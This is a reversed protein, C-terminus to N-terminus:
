TRALLEKAKKEAPDVVHKALSELLHELSSYKFTALVWPYVKFGEWMAYETQTELLIPQVPVSWLHPIISAVEHPLNRPETFDAIIFRSMCALITMTEMLHRSASKDFDFWVPIYDRRRLEERIADLVTKREPTFRGLILVVKTTITDIVDRIKENNLLVYIFQAVELNDVTIIPDDDATIILNEQTAGDLNLDWASIGYIRCDSLDAASLDGGILLVATLNAAKLKAGRLNAGRLDALRLDAGNLHAGRLNAGRLDAMFLNATFLRAGRLDAGRLNAMFVHAGSLDAGSLYAEHLDAGRLNAMFLHAGSLDVEHLNAESLDPRVDPHARRWANWAEVGKGLIELHEPNAM